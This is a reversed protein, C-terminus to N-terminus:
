SPGYPGRGPSSGSAMFALGALSTVAINGKYTGSGFSGDANQNRALWALGSQIARDTDETMMEATGEPVDGRRGEGFRGVSKPPEKGTEQAAAPAPGLLTALAALGVAAVALFGCPKARM